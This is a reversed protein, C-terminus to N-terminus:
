LLALMQDPTRIIHDAGADTLEQWDRFGWLVGVSLMSAAKATAIDVATDGVLVVEDSALNLRNVIAQAGSPDPKHPIKSEFGQIAAFTNPPFFQGICQQVFPHDKNSLVALPLERSRLEILLAEIGPYLSVDRQWHEAYDRQQQELLYEITKQDRESAPLCREVCKRAGDGIFHRYASEPHTPYGAAGLVRNYCGALSTLTNLLTGDLDFVVAKIM